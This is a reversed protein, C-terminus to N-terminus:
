EEDEEEEEIVPAASRGPPIGRRVRSGGGGGSGSSSGMSDMGIGLGKPEKGKSKENEKDQKEELSTRRGRERRKTSPTSVKMSANASPFASARTGNMWMTSSSGISSGIQGLGCAFEDEEESIWDDDQKKQFVDRIPGKKTQGQSNLPSRTRHIQQALSNQRSDGKRRRHSNMSSSDNDDLDGEGERKREVSSARSSANSKISSAVSSPRLSQNDAIVRYHRIRSSDNGGPARRRYNHLPSAPTVNKFRGSANDSVLSPSRMSM